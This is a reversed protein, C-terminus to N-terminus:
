KQEYVIVHYTFENDLDIASATNGVKYAQFYFDTLRSKFLTVGIVSLNDKASYPVDAIYTGFSTFVKYDGSELDVQYLKNVIYPDSNFDSFHINHMHPKAIDEFTGLEAKEKQIPSFQYVKDDDALAVFNETSDFIVEGRLIVKDTLLDFVERTTGGDRSHVILNSYSNNFFRADDYVKIVEDKGNTAIIKNTATVKDFITTVYLDEKIQSKGLIMEFPEKFPTITRGNNSLLGERQNKLVRYELDIESYRVINRDQKMDEKLAESDEFNSVNKIVYNTNLNTVKKSKIDYLKLAYKYYTKTIPDRYDFLHKLDEITEFIGPVHEQRVLDTVNTEFDVLVNGNELIYANANSLVGTSEFFYDHHISVQDAIENEEYRIILVVEQGIDIKVITKEKVIDEVKGPKQKEVKDLFKNVKDQLGNYVANDIYNTTCTKITEIIENLITKWEAENETTYKRRQIFSGISMEANEVLTELQAALGISLVVDDYTARGINKKPATLEYRTDALRRGYFKDTIIDERSIEKAIKVDSAPREYEVAKGGGCAFLLLGFALVM